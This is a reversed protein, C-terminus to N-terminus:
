CYRKRYLAPKDKDTVLCSIRDNLISENGLYGINMPCLPARFSSTHLLSYLTRQALAVSAHEGSSTGPNRRTYFNSRSVLQEREGPSGTCLHGGACLVNLNPWINAIGWDHSCWCTSRFM